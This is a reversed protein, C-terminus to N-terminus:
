LKFALKFATLDEQQAFHITMGAISYIFHSDKLAICWRWMDTTYVSQIVHISYSSYNM